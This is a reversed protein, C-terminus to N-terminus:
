PLDEEYLRPAARVSCVGEEITAHENVAACIHKGCQQTAVRAARFMSFVARRTNRTRKRRFTNVSVNDLLSSNRSGPTM